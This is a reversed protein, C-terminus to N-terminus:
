FIVCAIIRGNSLKTMQIFACKSSACTSYVLIYPLQLSRSFGSCTCIVNSTLINLCYYYWIGSFHQKVLVLIEVLPLINYCPLLKPICNSNSIVHPFMIFSQRAHSHDMIFCLATVLRAEQTFMKLPFCIPAM